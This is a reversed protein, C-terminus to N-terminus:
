AMKVMGCSSLSRQSLLTATIVCSSHALTWSVSTVSNPSGFYRPAFGPIMAVSWVHVWVSSRWGCMCQRTVPPPKLSAPWHTATRFPNKNGIRTTM